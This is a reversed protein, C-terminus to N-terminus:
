STSTLYNVQWQLENCQKQLSDIKKHLDHVYDIHLTVLKSKENKYLHSLQTISEKKQKIFKIWENQPM